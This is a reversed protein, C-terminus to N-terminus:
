LNKLPADNVEVGMEVLRDRIRDATKFDKTARALNRMEMLEVAVDSLVVEYNEHLGLVDALSIFQAIDNDNAREGQIMGSLEHLKALARPTNLDDLLPDIFTYSANMPGIKRMTRQLSRMSAEANDLSSSTEGDTKYLLPQTYHATLLFYRIAEASYGRFQLESLTVINGLSKSMKGHKVPNALKDGDYHWHLMGNHAWYRALPADHVAHSQACECEHHPFKLDVGGVHIDVTPGVHKAIMASCEIHWGPRGRSWPSDWGPQDDTSPKWLVFDAPHRKYGAGENHELSAPDLNTNLHFTPHNGRDFLIHGESEYAFGKQILQEIFAVIEPLTETVRPKITPDLVHLGIMDAEYDNIAARTINEIPEGRERAADMIKDDIDTYNRVFVVEPYLRRLVRHLVDWVVAARLNGIHPAAYVTPGCQYVTVRQDDAPVFERDGLTLKM